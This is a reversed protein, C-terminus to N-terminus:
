HLKIFIKGLNKRNKMESYAKGIGDLFVKEHEVAKLQGRSVMEMASKMDETTSSISGSVSLGKLITVGLPLPFAAPSVNGIVVIRGGAALSKFSKEFTPIGVTELVVDAGGNKKKVIEDIQDPSIVEDAGYEMIKENKWPSTSEAFVRAGLAKGIQVAHIGVGGGAGTVLLNEGKKLRGVHVLAHYVMGTVCASIAADEDSVGSPIKVLGRADAVIYESYSGNRTEGYTIKNQCLNTDGVKCYKCKGCPIYILSAVRDGVSFGSVGEGVYEIKGAIEHGPIVPLTVRPFFGEMTLIDRYCIGTVDQRILVEGPGVEPLDMNKVSPFQNLKELVAAKM